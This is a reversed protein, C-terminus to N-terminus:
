PRAESAAPAAETRHRGALDPRITWAAGLAILFGALGGLSAALRAQRAADDARATRQVLLTREEAAMEAVLARAAEMTSKGVRTVVLTRAAAFGIQDRVQVDRAFVSRARAALTDLRALRRQQAPNDVTLRRLADLHPQLERLGADYPTLFVSDGTIIYGRAGTQLDVLDSVTAELTTLVEQTHAVLKSGAVTAATGRLSAAGIALLIMLAATLALGVKWEISMPRRAAVTM